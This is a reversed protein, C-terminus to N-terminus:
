SSTCACYFRLFFSSSLCLIGAQYICAADNLDCFEDLQSCPITVPELRREKKNPYLFACWYNWALFIQQVLTCLSLQSMSHIRPLRGLSLLTCSSCQTVKKSHILQGGKIQVEFFGTSELTGEGTQWLFYVNNLVFYVINGKSLSWSFLWLM